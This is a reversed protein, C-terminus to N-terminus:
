MKIFLTKLLLYKMVKLRSCKSQIVNQRVYNNLKLYQKNINSILLIITLLHLHSSM